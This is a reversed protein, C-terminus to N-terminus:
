LLFVNCFNIVQGSQTMSDVLQVLSRTIPRDLDSFDSEQTQCSYTVMRGNCILLSSSDIPLYYKSFHQTLSFLQDLHYNFTQLYEFGKQKGVFSLKCAWKLCEQTVCRTVITSRTRSASGYFVLKHQRLKQGCSQDKHQPPIGVYKILKWSSYDVRQWYM